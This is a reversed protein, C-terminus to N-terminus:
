QDGEETSSADKVIPDNTANPQSGDGPLPPTGFGTAGTLAPIDFQPASITGKIPLCGRGNEQPLIALMGALDPRENAFKEQATACIKLDINSYSFSDALRIVGTLNIKFWSTDFNGKEVLIKGSRFKLLFNGKLILIDKADSGVMPIEPLSIIKGGHININLDGITKSIREDFGSLRGNVDLSKILISTEGSEVRFSSLHIDGDFRSQLIELIKLDIIVEESKIVTDSSPQIALSDIRKEGLLPFHIDKFEVIVNSKKTFELIVSKIVEDLPFLFLSFVLFTFFGIGILGLITNRTLPKEEEELLEDDEDSDTLGRLEEEDVYEDEAIEELNM